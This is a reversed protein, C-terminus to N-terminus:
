KREEGFILKAATKSEGSRRNKEISYINTNSGSKMLKDLSKFTNKTLGIM